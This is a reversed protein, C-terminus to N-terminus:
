TQTCVDAHMNFKKRMHAHTQTRIQTRADAYTETDARTHARTRTHMGQLGQLESVGEGVHRLAAVSEDLEALAARGGDAGDAGSLERQLQQVGGELESPHPACAVRM